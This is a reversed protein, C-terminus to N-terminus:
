LNNAAWIAAQLRNTVGIKKYINYLHTKVTHTSIYIKKAIDDNSAGLSILSLIEIERQTLETKEMLVTTKQRFGNYAAKLLFDRSIWVQGKLIANIGKIFLDLSDDSYFFGKIKKSLAKLEIGSNHELNFLSIIYKKKSIQSKTVLTRLVDEFSFNKSDILILTIIDDKSNIINETFISDVEESICCDYGSNEKIAYTLIDTNLSHFGLICIRKEM